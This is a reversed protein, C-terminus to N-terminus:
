KIVRGYDESEIVTMMLSFAKACWACLPVPAPKSENCFRCFDDYPYKGITDLLMDNLAARQIKITRWLVPWGLASVSNRLEEKHEEVEQQLNAPVPESFVLEQKRLGVKIGRMHLQEVLEATEM